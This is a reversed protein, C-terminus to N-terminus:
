PGVPKKGKRFTTLRVKQTKADAARILEGDYVITKGDGNRTKMQAGGTFAKVTRNSGLHNTLKQAFSSEQNSKKTGGVNCSNITVTADSTFNESDIEQYNSENIERSDYDDLQEMEASSDVGDQEVSEGGLSLGWPGGHSFTTLSAIEGSDYEKNVAEIFSESSAARTVVVDDGEGLMGSNRIKDALAEANKQFNDGQDGTEGILEANEYGAGYIILYTDQGDPDIFIIPNNNCYHYPTFGPYKESKNDIM